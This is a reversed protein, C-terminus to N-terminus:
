SNGKATYRTEVGLWDALSIIGKIVCTIIKM